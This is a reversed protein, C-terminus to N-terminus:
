SSSALRSPHPSCVSSHVREFLQQISVQSREFRGERVVVQSGKSEKDTRRSQQVRQVEYVPVLTRAASAYSERPVPQDQARRERATARM